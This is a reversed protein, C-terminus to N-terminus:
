RVLKEIAVRVFDVSDRLKELEKLHHDLQDLQRDSQSVVKNFSDSIKSISENFQQSMKDARGESRLVQEKGEKIQDLLRDEARQLREDNKLQRAKWEPIAIKWAAIVLLFFFAALAGQTKFFDIYWPPIPALPPAVQLFISM